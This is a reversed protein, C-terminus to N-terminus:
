AWRTSDVVQLNIEFCERYILIQNLAAELYNIVM